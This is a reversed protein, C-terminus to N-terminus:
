AVIYGLTTTRGQRRKEIHDVLKQPNRKVLDLFFELKRMHRDVIEISFLQKAANAEQAPGMMPTEAVSPEASGVEPAQERQRTDALADATTNAVSPVSRETSNAPPVVESDESESRASGRGGRFCRLCFLGGKQNKSPLPQGAKQTGNSLLIETPMPAVPASDAASAYERGEDVSELIPNFEGVGLEEAAEDFDSSRSAKLTALAANADNFVAPVDAISPKFGQGPSTPSTPDKQSAPLKPSAAAQDGQGGSSRQSLRQSGGKGPSTPPALVGGPGRQSDKTKRLLRVWAKFALPVLGADLSMAFHSLVQLAHADARFYTHSEVSPDSCKVERREWLSSTPLHYYMDEVSHYIWEPAEVNRYWEVVKESGDGTRSSEVTERPIWGKPPPPSVGFDEICFLAATHGVSDPIILVHDEGACADLLASTDDQILSAFNDEAGRDPAM